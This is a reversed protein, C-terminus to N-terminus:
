ATKELILLNAFIDYELEAEAYTVLNSLRHSGCILIRMDKPAGGQVVTCM